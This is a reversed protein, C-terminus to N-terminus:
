QHTLVAISWNQMVDTKICMLISHANSSHFTM